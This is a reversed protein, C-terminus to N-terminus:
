GLTKRAHWLRQLVTLHAIFALLVLAWYVAKEVGGAELLSGLLLIVLREAREGAGVDCREMELEARARTYSVLLSGVLAAIVVLLHEPLYLALGTLVLADAYRDSVSDLIGGFPTAKGEMRALAGDVADMLGALGLSLSAFILNRWAYFLGAM